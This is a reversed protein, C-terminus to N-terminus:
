FPCDNSSDDPADAYDAYKDAFPDDEIKAYMSDLYASIGRKGNVEWMYPSIVVGCEEIKAFDLSSITNENLFVQKHNSLLRVKPARVKFSVKVKIYHTPEEDPDKSILPRVNWGADALDEAANPDDIVVAFNRDGERNYNDGKGSFNKFILRANDIVLKNMREAM